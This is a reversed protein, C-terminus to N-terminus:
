CKDTENEKEKREIANDEIRAWYLDDMAYEEDSM